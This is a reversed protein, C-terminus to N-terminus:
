KMSEAFRVLDEKTLESGQYVIEIFLRDTKWRLTKLFPESRWIPGNDTLEWVGEIYEGKLGGIEIEEIPASAGVVGQLPYIDEPAGLPQESIMFGEGATNAYFLSVMKNKPDYTAGNFQFGTVAEQSPVLLDYGALDTAEAISKIPYPDSNAETPTYLMGKALEIMETQGLYAVADVNGFKTMEFWIGDRTWRLRLIPAAPNWTAKDDGALVVFTGQVFEGDLEGIKVPIIAEAPVKDWDSQVYGEQSQMIILNSGGNEAEYELSIAKGYLRAGLFKFGEPTSALETADFGALREADSVITILPMPPLATADVQVDDPPVIQWPQLPLTDSEARTFLQLVSQAFARGQPTILASTLLTLVAVGSYALRKLSIRNMKEGQQRYVKKGAVLRSQVEPLLDIQSAPIEDELADQLISKIKKNDMNM